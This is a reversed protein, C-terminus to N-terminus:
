SDNTLITNNNKISTKSLNEDQNNIKKVNIISESIKDSFLDSIRATRNNIKHIDLYKPIFKVAM